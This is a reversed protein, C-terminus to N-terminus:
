RYLRAANRASADCSPVFHLRPYHYHFDNNQFDCQFAGNLIIGKILCYSMVTPANRLLFSSGSLRISRKAMELELSKQPPQLPFPCCQHDLSRLLKWFNTLWIFLSSRTKFYMMFLFNYIRLSCRHQPVAPFHICHKNFKSNTSHTQHAARSWPSRLCSNMAFSLCSCTGPVQQKPCGDPLFTFALFRICSWWNLM